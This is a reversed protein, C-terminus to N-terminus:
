HNRLIREGRERSDYFQVCSQVGMRERERERVCVCVCVRVCVCVCACAFVGALLCEVEELQLVKGDPSIANNVSQRPTWVLLSFWFCEYKRLGNSYLEFWTDRVCSIFHVIIIGVFISTFYRKLLKLSLNINAQRHPLIFFIAFHTVDSGFFLNSVVKHLESLLIPINTSLQNSHESL